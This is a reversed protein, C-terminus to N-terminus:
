EADINRVDIESRRVKLVTDANRVRVGDLNVSSDEADLFTRSREVRSVPVVPDDDTESQQTRARRKWRAATRGAVEASRAVGLYVVVVAVALGVGIITRREASWHEATTVYIECGLLALAAVSFWARRVPSADRPLLAELM